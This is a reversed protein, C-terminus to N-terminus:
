AGYADEVADLCKSRKECELLSGYMTTPSSPLSEQISSAKVM